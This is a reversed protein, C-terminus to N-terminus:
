SNTSFFAAYIKQTQANSYKKDGVSQVWRMNYISNTLFVEDAYLLEDVSLKDEVLKYGGATLKEVLNRRMVGAICGEALAPTYVVEDKILFINAISTDCLRGETNLLVADNWKEKKAQLAALAYPLFNNHKLNSLIDCSKKIDTYVGLVLGNSNWSGTEDPLAWSQVLYNPKHDTADYLGGDGRFVTLRVRAMKGHGNKKLLTQIEQELIDPTFQKPIAFQLVQMGKWLRAFHEDIFELQGNISKMTEFLGDGFRLGRSDPGIIGSEAKLLKGNFIFYEM